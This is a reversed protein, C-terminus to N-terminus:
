RGGEPRKAPALLQVPVPKAAAPPGPKPTSHHIVVWFGLVVGLSVAATAAVRIFRARATKEPRWPGITKDLADKVAQDRFDMARHYGGARGGPKLRKAPALGM